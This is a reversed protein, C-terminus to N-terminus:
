DDEWQKQSRIVRLLKKVIRNFAIPETTARGTIYNTSLGRIAPSDDFLFEYRPNAYDIRSLLHGSSILYAALTTDTTSYQDAM